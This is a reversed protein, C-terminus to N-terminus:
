PVYAITVCSTGEDLDLRPAEASGAHAACVRNAGPTLSVTLRGGAGTVVVDGAPDDDVLVAFTRGSQGRVTVEVAATGVITPTEPNWAPGAV